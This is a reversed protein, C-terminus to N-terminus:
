KKHYEELKRYDVKGARTIPFEDLFVYEDPMHSEPLKEKCIKNIREQIENADKSSDELILYVVTRYALKEDKVGVVAVNKVIGEKLITEEIKMPYVRIQVRDPTLRSYIRKIRGTIKIIGEPSITALDRTRIWRKGDDEFIVESTELKNKYYGIMVTDSSLCLEGETNYDLEQLNDPNVIRVDVNMFPILGDTNNDPAVLIAASTETMGYGNILPANVNNRKLRNTISEEWTKNTEEGGYMMLKIYSLDIRTKQAKEVLGDMLLRGGIIHNIKQKFIMRIGIDPDPDPSMVLELSHCLAGHCCSSVGFALFLPVGFLFKDQAEFSTIGNVNADVFNKYYSNLNKNSLMVGKPTGTSGGTYQIMTMDNPDVEITEAKINEASSIFSNWPIGNEPQKAKKLKLITRALLSMSNEISVCIIKEAGTKNSAKKILEYAIDITFVVKTNTSILQERLDSETSTMGLWNSIAGIKNIAYLLYVFEPTNLACLSVIDGKKIGYSRLASATKNIKSFLDRYTIKNGFYNMAVYEMNNKTCSYLFQYMSTNPNLFFNSSKPYYRLWRKDKSPYSTLKKEEEM